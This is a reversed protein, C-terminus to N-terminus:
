LRHSIRYILFKNMFIILIILHCEQAFHKYFLCVSDVVPPPKSLDIIVKNLKPKDSSALINVLQRGGTM